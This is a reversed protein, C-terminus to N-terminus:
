TTIFLCKTYGDEKVVSIVRMRKATQISRWVLGNVKHYHPSTTVHWFEWEHALRSFEEAAFRPGDYTIDGERPNRIMRIHSENQKDSCLLLHQVNGVVWFIQQPLEGRYGLTWWRASISRRGCNAVPKGPCWTIDLTRKSQIHPVTFLYSLQLGHRRYLQAHKSLVDRGKSPEQELSNGYTGCLNIRKLMERRAATPIAIRERKSVVGDIVKLKDRYNKSEAM